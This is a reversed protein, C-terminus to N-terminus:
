ECAMIGSAAMCASFETSIADSWILDVNGNEDLGPNQWELNATAVCQDRNYRAQDCVDPNFPCSMNVASLLADQADVFSDYRTNMCNPECSERAIDLCGRYLDPFSILYACQSACETQCSEPQQWYWSRLTTTYTDNANLFSEWRQSECDFYAYSSQTGAMLQVLLVSLVMAFVALTTKRKM